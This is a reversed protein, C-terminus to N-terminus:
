IAMFEMFYVNYKLEFRSYTEKTSKGKKCDKFVLIYIWLQKEKVYIDFGDYLWKALANAYVYNM